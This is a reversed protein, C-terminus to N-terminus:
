KRTYTGTGEYTVTTGQATGSFSQSLTFSNKNLSVVDFTDRDQNGYDYVLKKNNNYFSYTGTEVTQPDSSNCKTAGEDETYKLDAGYIFNNDRECSNLTSLYDSSTTSGNVTTKLNAATLTWTGVIDAATISGGNDDDKKCGSSMIALAAIALFTQKMISHPAQFKIGRGGRGEAHSLREMQDFGGRGSITIKPPSASARHGTDSARWLGDLNYLIKRSAGLLCFRLEKSVSQRHSARSSHPIKPAKVEWARRGPGM